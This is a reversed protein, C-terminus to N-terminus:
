VSSSTLDDTMMGGEVGNCWAQELGVAQGQKPGM